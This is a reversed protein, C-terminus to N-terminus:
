DKLVKFYGLYDDREKKKEKKELTLIMDHDHIDHQFPDTETAYVGRVPLWNNCSLANVYWVKDRWEVYRPHFLAPTLKAGRELKKKEFAKLANM